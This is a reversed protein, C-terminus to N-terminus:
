FNNLQQRIHEANVFVLNKPIDNGTINGGMQNIADTIAIIKEGVIKAKEVYNITSMIQSFLSVFRYSNGVYMQGFSTCRLYLSNDKPIIHFQRNHREILYNWDELFIPKEDEPLVAFAGNYTYSRLQSNRLINSIHSFAPGCMTISFGGYKQLRIRYTYTDTNVLLSKLIQKVGEDRKETGSLLSYKAEQNKKMTTARAMKEIMTNDITSLIDQAVGSFCQRAM